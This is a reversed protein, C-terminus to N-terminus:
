WERLHRSAGSQVKISVKLPDAHEELVISKMQDLSMNKKGFKEVLKKVFAEARRLATLEIGAKHLLRPQASYRVDSCALPRHGLNM